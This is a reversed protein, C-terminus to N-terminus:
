RTNMIKEVSDQKVEETKSARKKRDIDDTTTLEVFTNTLEEVATGEKLEGAIQKLVKCCKRFESFKGGALEARSNKLRTEKSGRTDETDTVVLLFASSTGGREQLLDNLEVTRLQLADLMSRSQFNWTHTKSGRNAKKKEFEFDGGSKRNGASKKSKTHVGEKMEDYIEQRRVQNLLNWPGDIDLYIDTYGEPAQDLVENMVAAAYSMKEEGEAPPATPSTAPQIMALGFTAAIRKQEDIPRTNWLSETGVDERQRRSRSQHGPWPVPQELVVETSQRRRRTASKSKAPSLNNESSRKLGQPTSSSYNTRPPSKSTM